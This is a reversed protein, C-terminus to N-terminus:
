KTGDGFETEDLLDLYKTRWYTCQKKEKMLDLVLIRYNSTVREELVAIQKKLKKKSAM